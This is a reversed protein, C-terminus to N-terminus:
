IQDIKTPITGCEPCRDPTARLDYGCDACLGAAIRRHGRFEWLLRLLRRRHALGSVVICMSFIPWFSVVLRTALVFDVPSRKLGHRPSSAVRYTVEEAINEISFGCGEFRSQTAGPEILCNRDFPDYKRGPPLPQTWETALHRVSDIKILCAINGNFTQLVPIIITQMRPMFHEPSLHPPPLPHSLQPAPILYSGIWFVAMVVCLLPWIGLWLFRLVWRM